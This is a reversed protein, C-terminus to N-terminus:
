EWPFRGKARDISTVTTIRAPDCRVRPIGWSERFSDPLTGDAVFLLPPAFASPNFSPWSGTKQTMTCSRALTTRGLLGLGEIWEKHPPLMRWMQALGVVLPAVVVFALLGSL